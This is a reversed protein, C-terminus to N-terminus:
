ECWRFLNRTESPIASLTDNRSCPSIKDNGRQRMLRLSEESRKPIVYLIFLLTTEPDKDKLIASVLVNTDVVVKM